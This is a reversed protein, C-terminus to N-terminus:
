KSFISIVVTPICWFLQSAAILMIGIEFSTFSLLTAAVFGVVCAFVSIINNSKYVNRLSDLRIFGKLFNHVGSLSIVASETEESIGTMSDLQNHKKIVNVPYNSGRLGGCILENTICPDLTKVGVCIGAEYFAHLVEEFGRNMAYKIYFKAALAGDVSMYMISGLSQLFSEDINDLPTEIDYLKMFAGTGVLVEKGDIKASIGDSFHETISAEIDNGEISHVSNAFVYSLPGQLKDFVRAMYLIVKDIRNEGYTKISSVKVSRPPFVETDDFSIIGTTKYTDCAAEGIFATQTKKAKGSSVLFPLATSLLANFPLAALCIVTFTCVGTYVNEAFIGRILAAALSVLLVTVIMKFSGKSAEPVAYSKKFFGKVFNSKGVTFITTDNDLYKEFARAELSSADLQACSFKPAKSAAICFSTLATYAKIFSNVSLLVLSICGVSCLSRLSPSDSALLCSLISHLACVVVTVAAFSESSPRSPRLGKFARKMGDLNFIVCLFMLQLMSMAYTVGYKGAEFVAPHAAKTGSSVEFYVCLVAAVLTLVVSFMAKIAKSRLGKLIAPEQAKETYEEDPEDDGFVSDFTKYSKGGTGLARILREEETEPEDPTDLPNTYERVDSAEQEATESSTNYIPEFGDQIYDEKPSSSVGSLMEMDDDSVLGRRRKKKKDKKSKGDDEPIPAPTIDFTKTEGEDFRSDALKILENVKDEVSRSHTANYYDKATEELEGVNLERHDIEGSFEQEAEAATESESVNEAEDESSVIDINEKEVTMADSFAEEVDFLSEQDKHITEDAGLTEDNSVAPMEKTKNLQDNNNQM